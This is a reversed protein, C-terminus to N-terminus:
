LPLDSTRPEPPLQAYRAADLKQLEQAAERAAATMQAPKGAQDKANRATEAISYLLDAAEKKNGQKEYIEALRLKATDPTIIISNQKAIDQYINAADDYKGDAEEAQALSFKALTSVASDSSKILSQLQSIGKSRDLILNNTAIFYLAIEHTSGSYKDAVKQFEENAKQARARETPFTMGTSGPSPSPSVTAGNIAIARGLARRAEDSKRASRWSWLGVIAALAIIAAISYLITWGKGELREALRDFLTMTTDRFRDQKLERARKKKGSAM